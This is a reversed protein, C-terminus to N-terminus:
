KGSEPLELIEIPLGEPAYEPPVVRDQPIEIPEGDQDVFQYDPHFVLIAPLPEGADSVQHHRVFGEPLPFDEPVVIGRRVPKTGPPPFLEMGTPGEYPVPQPFYPASEEDDESVRPEERAPPATAERGAAPAEAPPPASGERQRPRAPPQAAVAPPAAAAPPAQAPPASAERPARAVADGERGPPAAGVGVALAGWIWPSVLLAALLTSASSALLLWV